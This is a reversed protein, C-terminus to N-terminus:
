PENMTGETYHPGNANESSVQILLSVDPDTATPGFGVVTWVKSIKNKFLNIM